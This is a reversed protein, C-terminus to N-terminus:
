LAVMCRRIVRNAGLVERDARQLLQLWAPQQASVGRGSARELGSDRDQHSVSAARMNNEIKLAQWFDVTRTTFMEVGSAVYNPPKVWFKIESGGFKSELRSLNMARGIFNMSRRIFNMARGIFNMRRRIFNMPREIFNMPRGIFSIAWGIFNIARRIFNMARRVFDKPARGVEDSIRHSEDRTRPLEM